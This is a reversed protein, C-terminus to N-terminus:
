RCTKATPLPAHCGSLGLTLENEFATSGDDDVVRIAVLQKAAVLHEPPISYLLFGHVVRASVHGLDVFELEVRDFRPAVEGAVVVSRRTSLFTFSPNVSRVGECGAVM